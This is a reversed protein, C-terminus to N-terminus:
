IREQTRQSVRACRPYQRLKFNADLNPQADALLSQSFSGRRRGKSGASGSGAFRARPSDNCLPPDYRRILAREETTPGERALLEGNQHKTLRQRWEFAEWPNTGGKQFIGSLARSVLKETQVMRAKLAVECKGIRVVEGGLRFAYLAPGWGKADDRDFHIVLSAPPRFTVRGVAVFGDDELM